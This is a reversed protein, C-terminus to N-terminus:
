FWVKLLEMCERLRKITEKAKGEGGGGGVAGGAGGRLAAGADVNAVAAGVKVIQSNVLEWLRDVPLPAAMGAGGGGGGGIGGGGGGGLGGLMSASGPAFHRTQQLSAQIWVHLFEALEAVLFANGANTNWPPPATSMAGQLIDLILEPESGTSLLTTSAWGTPVAEATATATAKGQRQQQQLELNNNSSNNNAGATTSSAAASLVTSGSTSELPSTALNRDGKSRKRWSAPVPNEVRLDNDQEFAYRMLLDLVVDVPCANDKRGLRVFLDKVTTAIARAANAQGARRAAEHERTLIQTWVEAVLGVDQYEASAIIMLQEELLGYPEAFNKYLTSLDLLEDDLWEISETREVDADDAALQQLSHLIKAQVQAVELDEEVQSLFTVVDHNGAHLPGVSKANGVALALYEIRERLELGFEKSHALADLVQAAAFFESNRVYLQWLLDRLTRVYGVDNAHDAAPMGQLYDALFPTRLQLLQDTLRREILWAYFQEHFLPDDSAEARAYADGRVTDRADVLVQVRAKTDQVNHAADLRDDLEKLTEFVIAYAAKRRDYVAKRPENDAGAPCGDARYAIAVNNPDWEAACRLALDVVGIPYDLRRYDDCIARLKDTSLQGAGRSLLRESHRLQDVKEQESPTEKARRICETAKYQRVDDASCFSGCRSQLGDAVADISAQAGIKAEILATVLEKSVIKGEPATLLQGFRLSSITKKADASCANILPPLGHDMLFLVFNVAEVTRLALAQIREVSEQDSKIAREQDYETGGAGGLVLRSSSPGGLSFLKGNRQMFECLPALDLLAAELDEKKLPLQTATTSASSAVLSKYPTVANSAAANPKAGAAPPAPPVLLRDWIRDLLCAMYLALGEHRSTRPANLPTTMAPWSGCQGFIIRSAQSMVEESLMRGAGKPGGGGFAGASLRNLSVQSNGAAIALATACSETPGFTNLFEMMIASNISMGSELLAKLMDIPRREVVETLGNNDLILFSRPPRLFQAVTPRILEGCESFPAAAAASGLPKTEAMVPASFVLELDIYSASEVRAGPTSSGSPAPTICCVQSLGANFSFALMFVDGACLVSSVNRGAATAAQQQQQLQSQGTGSLALANQQGPQSPQQQPQLPAALGPPMRVQFPAWTRGQFDDFFIRYGRTTVAILAVNTRPDHEAPGIWVIDGVDQQSHTIGSQKTVGEVSGTKNPARSADRSPLHFVEILSGERLTYLLNRADDVAIRDLRKEAKIFTPLLNSFKPSTVNRLYCKNSFWGESAQYVLEYLCNDSGAAFIRGAATGHIETLVVGNTNASMGTEYLKVESQGDAKQIFEIGLLTLSRGVHPFSGTSIVLLHKIQDIFVGQRAPIVGVALILQDDPLSHYEFASQGEAYNWLYLQHDITICARQIDPFLAQRAIPALGKIGDFIEPPVPLTRTKEFALWPDSRHEYYADNREPLRAKLEPLTIRGAKASHVAAVADQLSPLSFPDAVM